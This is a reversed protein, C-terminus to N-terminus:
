PVPAEGSNSNQVGIQRITADRLTTPETPPEVRPQDMPQKRFM